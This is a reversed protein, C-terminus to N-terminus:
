DLFLSDQANGSRQIMRHPVTAVMDVQNAIEITRQLFSKYRPGDTPCDYFFNEGPEVQREVFDQQFRQLWYIMEDIWEDDRHVRLIIAGNTATQRVMIASRCQPGLCLMELMLQPVYLPFIYPLKFPLERVAFQKTPGQHYRSPRSITFPCHNKVEVAEIRGDPHHIVADPTAGLLLSSASNGDTQNFALGAGCMGVEKVVIHPDLQHFYNIVTLVSTAEQADGWMMRIGLGYGVYAIARRRRAQREKTSLHHTYKAPFRQGFRQGGNNEWVKSGKTKSTSPAYDDDDHHHHSDQKNNNNNNPILIDNMEQLTRLAPKRLKHFATVGRRHWSIPIGLEKGAKDELFGLAAVAQSTTCRGNHLADWQWSDQRINRVDEMSNLKTLDDPLPLPVFNPHERLHEMPISGWEVDPLNGSKPLVKPTKQHPSNKAKVQYSRRDNNDPGNKQEHGLKSAHKPALTTADTDLTVEAGAPAAVALETRREATNLRQHSSSRHQLKQQKQRRPKAAGPVQSPVLLFNTAAAAAAAASEPPMLYVRCSKSSKNNKKPTVAPLPYQTVFQSPVLVPTMPLQLFASSVSVSALFLAAVLLWSKRIIATKSPRLSEGSSLRQKLQCSSKMAM